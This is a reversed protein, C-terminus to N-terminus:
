RLPVKSSPPGDRELLEVMKNYSSEMLLVLSQLSWNVHSSGAASRAIEAAWKMLETKTDLSLKEAM